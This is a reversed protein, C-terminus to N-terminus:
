SIPLALMREVVVTHCASSNNQLSFVVVEFTAALCPQVPWVSADTTLRTIDQRLSVLSIILLHKSFGVQIGFISGSNNTHDSHQVRLDTRTLSNQKGKQELGSTILWFNHETQWSIEAIEQSFYRAWPAYWSILLTSSFSSACTIFSESVVVYWSCLSAASSCISVPFWESSFVEGQM